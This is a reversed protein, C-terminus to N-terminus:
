ASARQISYTNDSNTQSSLPCRIFGRLITSRSDTIGRPQTVPLEELTYGSDLIDATQEVAFRCALSSELISLSFLRRRTGSSLYLPFVRSSYRFKMREQIVYNRRERTSKLISSSLTSYAISYRLPAGLSAHYRTSSLRRSSSTQKYSVKIANRRSRM